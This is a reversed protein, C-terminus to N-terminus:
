RFSTLVDNLTQQATGGFGAAAGPIGGRILGDMAALDVRPNDRLICTLAVHGVAGIMAGRIFGDLIGVAAPSIMDVALIIEM